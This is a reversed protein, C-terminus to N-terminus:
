NRKGISQRVLSPGPCAHRCKRQDEDSSACGCLRDAGTHAHPHGEPFQKWSFNRKRSPSLFCQLLLSVAVVLGGGFYFVRDKIQEQPLVCSTHLDSQFRIRGPLARQRLCRHFPGWLYSSKLCVCVCEYIYMGACVCVNM